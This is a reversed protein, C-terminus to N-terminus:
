KLITRIFHNGVARKIPKNLFFYIILGAVLYFGAIIMFGYWAKGLVDGLWLAIGINLFLLFSTLLLIFVSLPVFSSILDTLKDVIRLKVLEYSVKGYDTVADILAELPNPKQEM